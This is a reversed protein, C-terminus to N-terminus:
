QSAEMGAGNQLMVDTFGGTSCGFDACILGKVDIGFQELAFALKEGARSAFKIEEM